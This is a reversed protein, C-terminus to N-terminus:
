GVNHVFVRTSITDAVIHQWAESNWKQGQKYIACARFSSDEQVKLSINYLHNIAHCLNHTIIKLMEDQSLKIELCFQQGGRREDSDNEYMRVVLLRAM